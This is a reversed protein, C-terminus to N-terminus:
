KLQGGTIHIYIYAAKGTQLKALSESFLASLIHTDQQRPARQLFRRAYVRDLSRIHELLTQPGEGLTTNRRLTFLKINEM